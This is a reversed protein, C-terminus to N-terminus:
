TSFLTPSNDMWPVLLQCFHRSMLLATQNATRKYPPTHESQQVALQISTTKVLATINASLATQPSGSMLHSWSSFTDTKQYTIATHELDSKALSLYAEWAVWTSPDVGSTQWDETSAEMTIILKMPAFVAPWLHTILRAVWHCFPTKFGKYQTLHPSLM